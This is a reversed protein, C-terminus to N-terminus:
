QIEMYLKKYASPSVGVIKSFARSFHYESSYGIAKAIAFNTDDTQILLEKARAIRVRIVYNWVSEGTEDKYLKSLYSKSINLSDALVEISFSEDFCNNRILNQANAILLAAKNRHLEEEDLESLCREFLDTLQRSRIIQKLEEMMKELQKEKASGQVYAKMTSICQWFIQIVESRDANGEACYDLWVRFMERLRQTEHAALWLLIQEQNMATGHAMERKGRAIGHSLWAGSETYFLQNLFCKSARCAESLSGAEEATSVGCLLTRDHECYKQRIQELAKKMTKRNKPDSCLFLAFLGDGVFLLFVELDDYAKMDQELFVIENRVVAQISVVAWCSDEKLARSAPEGGHEYIRILQEEVYKKQLSDLSHKLDRIQEQYQSGSELKKQLELLSSLLEDRNVPKLLYGDVDLKVAKQAYEFKDYASLIMIKVSANTLRIRTIFEIGSIQDMCIDTIIIDPQERYFLTMADRANEAAGVISFGYFEWDIMEKLMELMYREDDVLLVKRVTTGGM